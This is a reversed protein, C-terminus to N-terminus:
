IKRMLSKNLVSEWWIKSSYCERMKNYGNKAITKREDDHQLYYNIKNLLDLESTFPVYHVMPEFWHKILHNDRELLLCGCLLSEFVRGKVQIVHEEHKSPFNVSIKARRFLEAYQDISLNHERQGGSVFFNM